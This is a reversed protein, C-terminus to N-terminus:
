PSAQAKTRLQPVGGGREKLGERETGSLTPMYAAPLWLHRHSRQATCAHTAASEGSAHSRHATPGRAHHLWCGVATGSPLAAAARSAYNVIQALALQESPEQLSTRRRIMSAAVM